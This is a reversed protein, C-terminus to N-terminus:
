TRCQQESVCKDTDWRFVHGFVEVVDGNRLDKTYKIHRIHKLNSRRANAATVDGIYFPM